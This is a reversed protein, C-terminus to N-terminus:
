SAQTAKLSPSESGAWAASCRLQLFSVEGQWRMWYWDSELVVVVPPSPSVPLVCCSRISSPLSASLSILSLNAIGLLYM